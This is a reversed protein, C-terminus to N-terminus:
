SFTLGLIKFSSKEELVFGTGDIGDIADSNNSRDFSVLQIKGANFDALWKRSWDM